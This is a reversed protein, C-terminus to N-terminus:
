TRSHNSVPLCVLGSAVLVIATLLFTSHLGIQAVGFEASRPGLMALAWATGMMLSSALNPRHPLLQQALAITVPIMSAFGIAVLLALVYGVSVPTYPILAVLPAFLTPVLVLPWKEKGPRVFFGALIGGLAMGGMTTANINGIQPASAIAIQEKSWDAHGIANLGQIWRVYLYLLAMNVSFRLCASAFLLGVRPWNIRKSASPDDRGNSLHMPPLNITVRHLLYAIAVIPVIFLPLVQLGHETAILRPWCYAGVIGGIMGSVFFLSVALTRRDQQLHGITAAGVPHFAGIGIAGIIYLVVLSGVGQALGVSGIGVAALGVGLAGLQRNRLHDSIVASAPQALGSSLSFLGLLWATQEATLQLRVEILGLTGPVFAALADVIFHAVPITALALAATRAPNVVREAQLRIGQSMPYGAHM